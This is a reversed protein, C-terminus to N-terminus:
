SAMEAQPFISSVCRGIIRAKSPEAYPSFAGECGDPLDKEAPTANLPSAANRGSQKAITTARAANDVAFLINGDRDRVVVDSTGSSQVSISPGVATFTRAYPARDGKRSQDVSQTRDVVAHSSSPTTSASAVVAVSLVAASWLGARVTFSRIRRKSMSDGRHAIERGCCRGVPATFAHAQLRRGVIHTRHRSRSGPWRVAIRACRSSTRSRAMSSLLSRHRPANQVSRWALTRSALEEIDYVGDKALEVIRDVILGRLAPDAGIAGRVKKFAANMNAALPPAVEASM